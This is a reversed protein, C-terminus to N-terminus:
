RPHLHGHLPREHPHLERECPLLSPFGSISRWNFISGHSHWRQLDPSSYLNIDTSCLATGEKRSTGVWWWVGDHRLLQGGHAHVQPGPPRTAHCPTHM